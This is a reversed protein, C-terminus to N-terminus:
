VINLFNAVGKRNRDMAEPGTEHPWDYIPLPTYGSCDFHLANSVHVYPMGLSLPVLEAYFLYTDLVLADVGTARLMDPFSHFMANTIAACAEISLQLAAEGECTGIGRVYENVSGIPFENECCPLFPLGAARVLPETDPLCMFVIEHNRSQLKRALVSM